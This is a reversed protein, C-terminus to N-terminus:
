RWRGGEDGGQLLQIIQSRQIFFSQQGFEAAFHGLEGDVGGHGLREDRTHIEAAAVLDEGDEGHERGLVDEVPRPVLLRLGVLFAGLEELRFSVMQRQKGHVVLPLQVLERHGPALLVKQLVPRQLPRLVNPFLQQRNHVPVLQFLHTRALVVDLNAFSDCGPEEEVRGPLIRLLSVFRHHLLLGDEDVGATRAVLLLGIPHQVVFQHQSGLLVHTLHQHDIGLPQHLQRRPEELRRIRIFQRPPLFVFADFWEVIPVM